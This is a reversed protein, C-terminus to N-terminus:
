TPDFTLRETSSQLRVNFKGDERECVVTPQWSDGGDLSRYPAGGQSHYHGDFGVMLHNPDDPHITIRNIAVNPLGYNKPTWTAGGDTSKLVGVSTVVWYLTQPDTPDVAFEFRGGLNQTLVRVQETAPLPPGTQAITEISPGAALLLALCAPAALALRAPRRNLRM